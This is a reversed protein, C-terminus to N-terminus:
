YIKGKETGLLKTSYFHQQCLTSEKIKRKGNEAILFMLMIAYFKITQNTNLAVKLIKQSKRPLSKSSPPFM